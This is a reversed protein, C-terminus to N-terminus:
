HLYRSGHLSRARNDTVHCQPAPVYHLLPHRKKDVNGMRRKTKRYTPRSYVNDSGSWREVNKWTRQSRFETQPTDYGSEKFEEKEEDQKWKKLGHSTWRPSEEQNEEYRTPTKSPRLITASYLRHIRCVAWYICKIQLTMNTITKM